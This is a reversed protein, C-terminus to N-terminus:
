GKLAGSKNRLLMWFSAESLLKTHHGHNLKRNIIGITVVSLALSPSNSFYLLFFFHIYILFNLNMLPSCALIIRCTFGFFGELTELRELDM